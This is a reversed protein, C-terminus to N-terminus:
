PSPATCFALGDRGGRKVRYMAHDAARLLEQTSHGHEGFVSVGISASVSLTQGHVDFPVRAQELVQEALAQSAAGASALVAFEDGGLRGGIAGSEGLLLSLRRSFERLVLNGGDHGYGDNISKFRDIDIYLIAFPAGGVAAEDCAADVQSHFHSRNSLGTLDDIQAMHRIQEQQALRLVTHAVLDGIAASLRPLQAERQRPLCSVFELVGVTRRQGDSELYSVPFAYGAHLGSAIASQRRQFNKDRQVDDTWAARGSLWVEGALGEGPQLRLSESYRSFVQVPKHAGYWANKCVLQAEAGEGEGQEVSWYGGWDWGLLQCVQEIMKSVADSVSVTGAMVRSTEFSIRERVAAHKSETIDVFLGAQIAAPEACPTGPMSMPAPAPALTVVRLWRTRGQEDAVAVECYRQAGVCGAMGLTASLVKADHKSLGSMCDALLHLRTPDLGLMDAAMASLAVTGSAPAIWWRGFGAIAEAPDAAQLQELIAQMHSADSLDAPLPSVAVTLDM